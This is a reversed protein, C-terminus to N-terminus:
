KTGRIGAAYQAPTMNMAEAVKVQQPTLSVGVTSAGSLTGAGMGSAAGATQVKQTTVQQNTALIGDVKQGKVLWYANEIIGEQNRQGPPLMRIYKSVDQSYLNFDKHKGRASEMQSDVGANIGDYWTLAANIEMQVAKRPEDDWAKELEQTFPTVNTDPTVAQQQQAQNPMIPQGNIDYTVNMAKSLQDLKAQLAQRKEREEHLATIPVEKPEPEPDTVPETIVPPTEQAGPKAEPEPTVQVAPTEGAPPTQTIPESSPEVIVNPEVVVTQEPM